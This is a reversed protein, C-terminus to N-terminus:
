FLPHVDKPDAALQAAERVWSDDSESLERLRAIVKGNARVRRVLEVEAESEWIENPSKKEEGKLDWHHGGLWVLARLVRVRDDSTVDAVWEEETRESPSEGCTDGPRFYNNRAAAGHTDELRVLEFRKGDWAYYQGGWDPGNGVGFIGTRMALLPYGGDPAEMLWPHYLYCRWGTVVVSESIVTGEDDLVTLYAYTTGPHVPLRHGDLLLYYNPGGMKGFDWVTWPGFFPDPRSYWDRKKLGLTRMHRMLDAGAEDDLKRLDKGRCAKIAAIATRRDPPAPPIASRRDPTAPLAPRRTNVQYGVLVAAMV